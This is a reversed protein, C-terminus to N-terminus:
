IFIYIRFSDKIKKIFFIMQFFKNLLQCMLIHVFTKLNMVKNETRLVEFTQIFFKYCIKTMFVIIKLAHQISVFM